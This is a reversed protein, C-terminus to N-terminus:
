SLEIGYWRLLSARLIQQLAFARNCWAFVRFTLEKLTKAIQSLAVEKGKTACQHDVFNGLIKVLRTTGIGVQNCLLIPRLKAISQLKAV